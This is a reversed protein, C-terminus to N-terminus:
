ARTAQPAAEPPYVEPKLLDCAPHKRYEKIGTLRGASGPPIANSSIMFLM